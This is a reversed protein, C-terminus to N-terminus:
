LAIVLQAISLSLPLDLMDVRLAIKRGNPQHEADAPAANASRTRTEALRNVSASMAAHSMLMWGSPSPKGGPLPM